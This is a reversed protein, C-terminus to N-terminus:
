RRRSRGHNRRAFSKKFRSGAHRFVWKRDHGAPPSNQAWEKVPQRPYKDCVSIEDIVRSFLALICADLLETNYLYQITGILRLSAASTTTFRIESIATM